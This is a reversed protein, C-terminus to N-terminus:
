QGFAGDMAVEPLRPGAPRPRVELAAERGFGYRAQARVGFGEAEARAELIVDSSPQGELGLRYHLEQVDGAARVTSTLSGPGELLRVGRPLQLQLQVPAPLPARAEVRAVLQLGEPDAGVQTWSLSLPAGMRATPAPLVESACGALVPLLLMLTRSLSV